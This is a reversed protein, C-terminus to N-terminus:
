RQIDTCPRELHMSSSVRQTWTTLPLLGSDRVQVLSMSLLYRGFECYTGPEPLTRQPDGRACEEAVASQPTIDDPMNYSGETSAHADPQRPPHAPETSAHADPQRPPHAPERREPSATTLVGALTAFCPNKYRGQTGAHRSTELPVRGGRSFVTGHVHKQVTCTNLRHVSRYLYLRM